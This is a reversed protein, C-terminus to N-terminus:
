VKFFLSMTASILLISPLSHTPTNPSILEAFDFEKTVKIKVM